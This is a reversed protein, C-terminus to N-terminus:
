RDLNEARSITHGVGRVTLTGLDPHTMNSPRVAPGFPDPAGVRAAPIDDVLAHASWGPTIVSWSLTVAHQRAVAVLPVPVNGHRVPRQRSAALGEDLVTAAM